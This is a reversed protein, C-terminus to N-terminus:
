FVQGNASERALAGHWRSGPSEDKCTKSPGQPYCPVLHRDLFRQRFRWSIDYVSRERQHLSPTDTKLLFVHLAETLHLPAMQAPQLRELRGSRHWRTDAFNIM